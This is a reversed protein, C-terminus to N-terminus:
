SFLRLASAMQRTAEVPDGEKRCISATPPAVGMLLRSLYDIDFALSLHAEVNKEVPVQPQISVHYWRALDALLATAGDDIGKRHVLVHVHSHVSRHVLDPNRAIREKPM